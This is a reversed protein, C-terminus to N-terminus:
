FSVVKKERNIYDILDKAPIPKSFYFGQVYECQLNELWDLQAKTEVGEAVIKLGLHSAMAHIASIIAKNSENEHLGMVFSRDIKLTQISYKQLYSLSSYEIGFDDIAISVGIRRLEELTKLAREVHNMTTNETVEIELLSPPIETEQIIQQISQVFHDDFFQRSSVNVSVRFSYGQDLWQKLQQCAQWLIRKGLPIILGTEEALPIFEGPSILGKTPHNWRILAEVGTVTNSKLSLQPQYYLEFEKLQLAKRLDEELQIPNLGKEELQDSFYVQEGGIKKKASYMAADAKQLLTTLDDGDSPYLSIGISASTIIEHGGIHFPIEFSRQIERAVKRIECRNDLDSLLVIFEDGSMRAIFGKHKLVSTCRKGVLTILEDGYGHGLTDNVIKFRNLDLLLIGMLQNSFKKKGEFVNNFHRRNPLGTLEDHYALYHIKKKADISDTIDTAIVHAGKVKGHLYIPVVIVDVTILQGNQHTIRLETKLSEGLLSQNFTSHVHKLDEKSIYTQFGKGILQQLPYGTIETARNNAEVIEGKQNFTFIASLNNEYLSKYEQEKELIEKMQKKHKEEALWDPIFWLVLLNAMEIIFPILNADEISYHFIDYKEPPILSYATLFTVGTFGIGMFVSWLMHHRPSYIPLEQNNLQLLIRFYPFTVGITMLITLSLYIPKFVLDPYLIGIYTSFNGVVMIASFVLGGQVFKVKDTNVKQFLTLSFYICLFCIIFFAPVFLSYREIFLNYSLTLIIAAHLLCYIVTYFFASLLQEKRGKFQKENQKQFAEKIALYCCISSFFISLLIFSSYIWISNM